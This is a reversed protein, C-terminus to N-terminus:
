VMLIETAYLTKDLLRKSPTPDIWNQLQVHQLMRDMTTPGLTSQNTNRKKLKLHNIM